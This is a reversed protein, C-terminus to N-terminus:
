LSNLLHSLFILRWHNTLYIIYSIIAMVELLLILFVALLIIIEDVPNNYNRIGTSFANVITNKIAPFFGKILKLNVYSGTSESQLLLKKLTSHLCLIICGYFIAWLQLINIKFICLTITIIMTLILPFKFSSFIKLAIKYDLISNIFCAIVIAIVCFYFLSPFFASIYMNPLLRESIIYFYENDGFFVNMLKSLLNIYYLRFFIFGTLSISVTLTSLTIKRVTM